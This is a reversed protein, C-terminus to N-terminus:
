SKEFGSVLRFQSTVVVAHRCFLLANSLKCIQQSCIIPIWDDGKQIEVVWDAHVGGLQRREYIGVLHSHDTRKFPPLKDFVTQSGHM